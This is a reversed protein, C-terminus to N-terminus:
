AGINSELVHLRDHVCQNCAMGVERVSTPPALPLRKQAADKRRASGHVTHVVPKKGASRPLVDVRRGM